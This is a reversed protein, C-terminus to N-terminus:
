KSAPVPKSEGPELGGVRDLWYQYKKHTPPFQFLSDGVVGDPGEARLQLVLNGEEDLRAVGISQGADETVEVEEPQSEEVSVESKEAADAEGSVPPAATPKACASFLIVALMTFFKNMGIVYCSQIGEMRAHALADDGNAM